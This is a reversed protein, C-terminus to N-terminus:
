PHDSALMQAGSQFVVFVDGQEGGEHQGIRGDEGIGGISMVTMEPDHDIAVRVHMDRHKSFAFLFPACAQEVKTVCQKATTKNVFRPFSTSTAIGGIGGEPKQLATTAMTFYQSPQQSRTCGGPGPSSGM